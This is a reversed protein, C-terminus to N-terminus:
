KIKILSPLKVGDIARKAEAWTKRTPTATTATTAASRTAFARPPPIRSMVRRASASSSTTELAPFERLRSERERASETNLMRRYEGVSRLTPKAPSEAASASADLRAASVVPKPKPPFGPRSSLGLSPTPSVRPLPPPPTPPPPPPRPPPPAAPRRRARATTWGALSADDDDDDDLSERDDRRAITEDSSDMSRITTTTANVTSSETSTASEIAPEAVEGRTEGARATRRKGKKKGKRTTTGTKSSTVDDDDNEFARLAAELAEDDVRAVYARTPRAVCRAFLACAALAAGEDDIEREVRAASMARHVIGHLPTSEYRDILPRIARRVRADSADDKDDDADVRFEFPCEARARTERVVADRADRLDRAADELLATVDVDRDAYSADIRQRRTTTTRTTRTTRTTANGRADRSAPFECANVARVRMVCTQAADRTESATPVRTAYALACEHFERRWRANSDNSDNSDDAAAAAHADDDDDDDDRRRSDAPAGRRALRITREAHRFEEAGLQLAVVVDRFERWSDIARVLLERRQILRVSSAAGVDHARLSELEVLADDFERRDALWSVVCASAKANTEADWRALRAADEADLASADFGDLVIADVGDRRVSKSRNDGRRFSVFRELARFGERLWREVDESSNSAFVPRVIDSGDEDEDDDARAYERGSAVTRRLHRVAARRVAVDRRADEEDDDEDDDGDDDDDRDREIREGDGDGRRRRATSRRRARTTSSTSERRGVCRTLGREIASASARFATPLADATLRTLATAAANADKVARAFGRRIAGVTEGDVSECAALALDLRHADDVADATTTTTTTTTSAPRKSSSDVITIDGGDDDDDDDVVDARSAEVVRRRRPPRLRARLRRRLRERVSERAVVRMSRRSTSDLYSAIPDPGIACDITTLARPVVVVVLRHGRAGGRDSELVFCV